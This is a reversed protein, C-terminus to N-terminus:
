RRPPRCSGVPRSRAQTRGVHTRPGPRRSRAGQGHDTRRRRYGKPNGAEARPRGRRPGGRHSKASEAYAQAMVEQRQAETRDLEAKIKEANALGLAIQQRREELMALVRRYAFTYLVACVISFSIIQALLHTWDVGFTRAIQSSRDKAAKHRWCSSPLWIRTSEAAIVIEGPVPRLVRDSGRLCHGSDVPGSDEHGRRSKTRGRNLSGHRDYGCEVAAGLAALGVHVNGGLLSGGYEGVLLLSLSRCIQKREKKGAPMRAFGGLRGYTM